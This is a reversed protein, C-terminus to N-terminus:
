GMVIHKRNRKQEATDKAVQDPGFAADWARIREVKAKKESDIEAKEWDYPFLEPLCYAILGLTPEVARGKYDLIFGDHYPIMGSPFERKVSSCGLIDGQTEIRVFANAQQPTKRWDQVVIFRSLVDNWLVVLTPDLKAQVEQTLQSARQEQLWNM